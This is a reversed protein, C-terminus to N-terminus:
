LARFRFASENARPNLFIPTRLPSRTAIDNPLLMSYAMTRESPLYSAFGIASTNFAVYAKNLNPPTRTHKTEEARYDTGMRASM